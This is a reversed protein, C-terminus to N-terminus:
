NALKVVMKGTNEGTFLGIFAHPAQEIGDFVTERYKIKGNKVWASMERM